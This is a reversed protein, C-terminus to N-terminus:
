TGALPLMYIEFVSRDADILFRMVGKESVSVTVNNGNSLKLLAIFTTLKWTMRKSIVGMIHGLRITTHDGGKAGVKFNLVGDKTIMEFTSDNGGLISAFYTVDNIFKLSPVFTIDWQVGKFPKTQILSSIAKESMFRYTSEHGEASKFVIESPTPKDNKIETTITVSAEPSNFPMFKLMGELTQMRNLGVPTESFEAIKTKAKCFMIVHDDNISEFVTDQGVNHVKVAEFFPKSIKIIEKLTDYIMPANYWLLLNFEIALCTM